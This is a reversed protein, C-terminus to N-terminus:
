LCFWTPEALIEIVLAFQAFARFRGKSAICHLCRLETSAPPASACHVAQLTLHNWGPFPLPPFRFTQPLQCCHALKIVEQIYTLRDSQSGWGDQDGSFWIWSARSKQHGTAASEGVWLRSGLGPVEATMQVARSLESRLLESILHDLCLFFCLVTLLKWWFRWDLTALM